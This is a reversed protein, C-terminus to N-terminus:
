WTRARGMDIHVFTNYNIGLGKFGVVKAVRIIEKKTGIALPIDFASGLRHQSFPAGGVRANHYASRYASNPSFPVGIEKRFKDLAQLAQVNVLIEGTAKCAIEFPSFFECPWTESPVDKYSEYLM